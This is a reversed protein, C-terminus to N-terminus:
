RREAYSDLIYTLPNVPRGGIRVEYHLHPATSRGSNGSLAIVDGRAVTQGKRVRSEQLHAYVTLVGGGHDIKVLRGLGRQKEVSVVRGAATARVPTGRPVSFDLGRHFTQKGTFPDHRTGYRSSLWGIDCPRISPIRARVEQRAALTDLLAAMGRRQIRAQNVLTELDLAVDAVQTETPEWLPGRGGVGALRAQPDLPQIDVAEAVRQQYAFVDDLDDQMEAVRAEFTAVEGRLRDNELVVPSGGPRWAVGVSWDLAYLGAGLMLVMVFVAGAVLSWAPVRMERTQGEGEPLYLFSYRRRLKM